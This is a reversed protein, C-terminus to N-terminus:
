KTYLLYIYVRVLANILHVADLSFTGEFMRWIRLNPDYQARGFYCGPRQEGNMCETIDLSEALPCPAGSWVTRIRMSIQAKATRMHGFIRKQMTRGLHNHSKVPEAPEESNACVRFVYKRMVHRMFLVLNCLILFWFHSTITLLFADKKNEEPACLMSVFDICLWQTTSVHIRRQIFVMYGSPERRETWYIM